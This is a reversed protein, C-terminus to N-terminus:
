YGMLKKTKIPLKKIEQNIKKLFKKAKFNNIKVNTISEQSSQSTYSGNKAKIELYSKYNIIANLKKDITFEFRENRFFDNENNFNTDILTCLTKNNFIQTTKLNSPYITPYGYPQMYRYLLDQNPNYAVFIRLISDKKSFHYVYKSTDFYMIEENELDNIICLTTNNLECFQVALKATKIENYDFYKFRKSVLYSGSKIIASQKKVKELLKETQANTNNTFIFLVLILQLTKKM